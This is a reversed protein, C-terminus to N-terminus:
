YADKIQVGKQPSQRRQQNWNQNNFQQISDNQDGLNDKYDVADKGQAAPQPPPVAANEAAGLWASGRFFAYRSDGERAIVTAKGRLNDAVYIGRLDTEGSRFESDASGIAKVHVGPRYGGKV